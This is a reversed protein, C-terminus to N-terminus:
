FLIVFYFILNFYFCMFLKDDSKTFSEYPNKDNFILYFRFYLDIM